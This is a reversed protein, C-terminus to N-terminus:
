LPSKASAPTIVLLARMARTMGVFMTRREKALIEAREDPSANPPIVPYAGGGFGALAVIPFELGKASHLTLAKVGPGTLDLDQGTMYTATLGRAQLAAAIARGARENPCLVACSGIALRLDLCARRFFNALLQTEYDSNLVARAAPLPGNHVYLREIMEPELASNTLYSQAAEGIERTSRYNARLIGTRGKFNLSEHVDAWTFGSGYISQNADATVFIRNPAKCLGVLLRLVAPDLDQAEDIMVADFSHYLSSREVLAAARARRQQWTERGYDRLVDRWREYIHWVLRRQLHNLRVQRGARSAALYDDLTEIHRAVIVQNLEQLLYDLGIRELAQRRAQQVLANGEQLVEEVIERTMRALPEGEIVDKMYGTERLIDYVLKDSTAVRVYERESGLLPHLLQESSKVLANTYTTFLIRPPTSSQQDGTGTGTDSGRMQQLLLRVRYLAVTSKGTGPGGKVLVPGASDLAWSVYREQEPSLKLLFAILEGEKYRLLDGVDQLILDPQQMVQSLPREFMYQDIELLAEDPIGPCSLLEDQTHVYQLRALYDVPLQLRELLAATIPEPLPRGRQQLAQTQADGGPIPSRAVEFDPFDALDALEEEEEDEDIEFELLEDYTTNGRRRIAYLSVTHRSYTYFIRYRGARLRYPKGPLRIIQKKTKGDPLPDDVLAAIKAIVMHLDRATLGTVDRLVAPKITVQYQTRM